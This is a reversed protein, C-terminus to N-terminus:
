EPIRGQGDARPYISVWGTHLIKGKNATDDVHNVIEQNWRLVEDLCDRLEIQGSGAAGHFIRVYGRPISWTGKNRNVRSDMANQSIYIEVM